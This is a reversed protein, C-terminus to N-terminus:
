GANDTRNERGRLERRRYYGDSDLIVENQLVAKSGSSVIVALVRVIFIVM